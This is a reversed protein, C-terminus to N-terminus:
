DQLTQVTEDKNNPARQRAECVIELNGIRNEPFHFSIQSQADMWENNHDITNGIFAHVKDPNGM